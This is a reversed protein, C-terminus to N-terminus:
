VEEYYTDPREPDFIENAWILTIMTDDGINTLSHTYGVPIDVVEPEDGSVIYELAEGGRIDRLAIRARGSVVLFKEVKTHHWHNGRTVGPATSSVSFQGSEKTKFFECFAGRADSHAKLRYSFDNKDLYSLYTSYLNVYLRRGLTPMVGSERSDRFAYLVDAIEGLKIEDTREVRCFGDDGPSIEGAIASKLLSLVDDIYVLTMVREPDSVAIPLGNAINHCFTAVASNYNPRCWKGYVNPLRFVYVPASNRGGYDFLENEADIKSRGYPNDLAAQISSTMAVPCANGCSELLATLEGTFGSNGSKFESLDKPRNVGALHVVFDCEGAYARLEDRGTGVDAKFVAYEDPTRSLEACLNQGIFGEAGTVLIKKM